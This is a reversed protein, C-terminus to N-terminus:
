SQHTKKAKESDLEDNFVSSVHPHIPQLNKKLNITPTTYQVQGPVQDM